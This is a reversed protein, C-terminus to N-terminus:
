PITELYGMVGASRERSNFALYQGSAGPSAPASLGTLRCQRFDGANGQLRLTPTISNTVALGSVWATKPTGDSNSVEERRAQVAFDIYDRFIIFDGIRFKGFTAGASAAASSHGMACVSDLRAVFATTTDATLTSHLATDSTATAPDVWTILKTIEAAPDSLDMCVAAWRPPDSTRFNAATTKSFIVTGAANRWVIDLTGGTLLRISCQNTGAFVNQIVSQDTAQLRMLLTFRNSNAMKSDPMGIVSAGDFQVLKSVGAAARECIGIRPQVKNDVATAGPSPVYLRGSKTSKVAMWTIDRTPPTAGIRTIQGSSSIAYDSQANSSDLSFTGGTGYAVISGIVDGGAPSSPTVAEVVQKVPFPIGGAWAEIVPTLCANSQLNYGKAIQHSGDDMAYTRPMVGQSLDTLEDATPSSSRELLVDHFSFVRGPNLDSQVRLEAEKVWGWASGPPEGSLSGASGRGGRTNVIQIFPRAGAQTRMAAYGGALTEVNNSGPVTLGNDGQHLVMFDNAGFSGAAATMTSVITGGSGSTQGSVGRNRIKHSANPSALNYDIPRTTLSGSVTTYGSSGAGLGDITRVVNTLSDETGGVTSAAQQGGQMSSAGFAWVSAPMTIAASPEGAVPGVAASTAQASGGAGTATVRYTINAGEDAVVLLYTGGTAGSIASGNRLWARASVTGNSITGDSGTLTQGVTPDGSISPNVSWSPAPTPTGGTRRRSLSIGSPLWLNFGTM